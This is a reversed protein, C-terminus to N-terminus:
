PGGLRVMGLVLALVTVTVFVAESGSSGDPDFSGIGHDMRDM